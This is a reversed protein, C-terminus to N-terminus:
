QKVLEVRRNRGRGAEADNSAVPALNAVGRAVMRKADIQYQKTLVAVIAEARRQSLAVNADFVGANDTHGVIFVKLAKDANLLKAMEDLQAKSEPKVDAKGTDFYVGYLAIKGDSALGKQIANADVTVKGMEMAKPEIVEIYTGVRNNLPSDDTAIQKSTFVAVTVDRGGSKVTGWVFHPDTETNLVLMALDSYGGYSDIQKMEDVNRILPAQIRGPGCAKGACAFRKAFGAKNLADEYNRAVEVVTAGTPALYALRTIKGEVKQPKLFTNNEVGGALPLSDEGFSMEGYGVLWSGAYRSILPHDKGGAVDRAPAGQAHVAPVISLAILTSAILRRM